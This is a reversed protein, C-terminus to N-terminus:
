LVISGHDFNIDVLKQKQKFQAKYNSVWDSWPKDLCFPISPIKPNSVPWTKSEICISRVLPTSVAESFKIDTFMQETTNKFNESSESKM